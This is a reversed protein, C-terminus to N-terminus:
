SINQWPAEYGEPASIISSYHRGLDYVTKMDEQSAPKYKKNNVVLEVGSRNFVFPRGKVTLHMLGPIPDIIEFGTVEEVEKSKIKTRAM